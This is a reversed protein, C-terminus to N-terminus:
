QTHKHTHTHIHRCTHTHMHTHMHTHTHTQTHMHMHMHTHTHTHTHTDIDTDTDTHRTDRWSLHIDRPLEVSSSMGGTTPQGRFRFEEEEMDSLSSSTWSPGSCSFLFASTSNLSGTGLINSEHKCCCFYSREQSRLQNLWFPELIISPSLVYQLVYSYTLCANM